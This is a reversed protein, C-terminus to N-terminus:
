EDGHDAFARVRAQSDDSPKEIPYPVIKGNELKLIATEGDVRVLTAEITKGDRNTWSGALPEAIEPVEAGRTIWLRLTQVDDESLRSGKPPMRVDPDDSVVVKILLSSGAKGPQIVGGSGIHEHIQHPELSMDGKQKEDNHCKLCKSELIPLVDKEFDAADAAPLPVTMGAALLFAFRSPLRNFCPRM